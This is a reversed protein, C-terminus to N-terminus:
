DAGRVRRQDKAGRVPLFRGLEAERALALRQAVQDEPLELRELVRGALQLSAEVAEPVVVAGLEALIAAHKADKARAFIPAGPWRHACTTVMREAAAADDLTVVFARARAAGARELTEARTTDGFFIPLGRKRERTVLAGDSDLAVFDIHEAALVGAITRGVRGFGAILVHDQFEGEGSPPLRGAHDAPQLRGAANRAGWALLPTLIMTIGVVATVFQALPPAFLGSSRALSIVVFAFESAQALTIAAELSLARPVGFARAAGFLTIAKIVLLGVVAGVVYPGQAAVERLDITMGVTVFFLGLLIGKFPELDVEIQHGYETEGLLLGALFAGLATTLGAAGTGGAAAVVILVTVAMILDRSGTAVVFRLLPRALFRGAAMIIVVAAAAQGLAIVLATGLGREGGGGGLVGTVFLIPVVMLDQFLLISLALRGMATASRHEDRLLQMVIATSSLALCLGLVIAIERSAGAVGAVAGITLASLAVQIAGVGLVYRRLQWLRSFSLELGLLFLLFIVGLEAFPEVRKPDSITLYEIWPYSQVLRGLGHPGVVLGVVLFGLVAGIRARHFLPVVIGAAGLFVFVDKIWAADLIEKTGEV